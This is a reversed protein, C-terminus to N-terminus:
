LKFFSVLGRLVEAQSNLEESAAATEESVASNNQTVNSIQALGEAVQAIAESQEKSATSINGIIELVEGASAVIAGLSVATSEAIKSGADVRSISDQILTTTQTAAEQSRGALTRVEDAVVAFGKGHEGARAAEVSANLALLNTQFAIDQITKVIKSIDGSSEKIQTMATVMQFMAANGDGANAVSKNSLENANLANEANQRTQQNIIDVTANLEQVSSAQQQAGSALDTASTSIQNAGMLVQDAAASIESLTKNLTDSINNVSRKILDFSGVYERAIKNRLDGNAMQALTSELEDIYSSTETFSVDVATMIDKFIGKYNETNANLGAETVKKDIISLDFNGVKMESMAIDVARLPAEVAMAISNLGEMIKRWGGKYNDAEIKFNMNGNVAITEIMAAVETNVNELSASFMRISEPLIMMEGPLDKVQINFDGYSIRNLSKIVDTVIDFEHDVLGNIGETVEKFSNKYKGTDIRHGIKGHQIFEREIGHLDDVISKIAFVLNSASQALLGVEDKSEVKINVNLNGEAVNELVDVVKSIPMSIMSSVILSVAIGIIIAIVALTILTLLMTAAMTNMDASIENITQQAEAILMTYISTIENSVPDGAPAFSLVTAFDDAMAAAFTPTAIETNYYTILSHLRDLNGLFTALETSTLYPDNNANVRLVGIYGVFRDYAQLFDTRAGPLMEVEGTLAAVITGARRLEAFGVPLRLVDQVRVNPYRLLADYERNINFTTVAAFTSIALIIALLLGFGIALKARIKMNKLMTIEGEGILIPSQGLGRKWQAEHHQVPRLRPESQSDKVGCYFAPTM